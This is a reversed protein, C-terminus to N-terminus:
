PRCASRALSLSPTLFPPPPRTMLGRARAICRVCARESIARARVLASEGLGERIRAFGRSNVSLSVRSDARIRAFESEFKSEFGRSNARLGVRSDARMRARGRAGPLQDVVVPPLPALRPRAERLHPCPPPPRRPRPTPRPSAAIGRGPDRLGGGLSHPEIPPSWLANSAQMLM